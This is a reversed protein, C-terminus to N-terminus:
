IYISHPVELDVLVDNIKAEIVYPKVCIADARTVGYVCFNEEM